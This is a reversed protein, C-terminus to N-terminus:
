GGHSVMIIRIEDSDDLVATEALLRGGRVVMVDLPNIALGLLVQEVTTTASPCTRVSRDPMTIQM